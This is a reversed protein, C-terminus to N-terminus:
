WKVESLDGHDSSADSHACGDDTPQAPAVDSGLEQFLVTSAVAALV